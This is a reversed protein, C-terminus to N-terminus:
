SIGIRLWSCGTWVKGGLKGLIWEQTTGFFGDLKSATNCKTVFQKKKRHPTTLRGDWGWAPPGGTTPQAMEKAIYDWSGEM